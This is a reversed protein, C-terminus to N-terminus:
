IVPNEIRLPKERSNLFIIKFLEFIKSNLCSIWVAELNIVILELSLAQDQLLWTFHKKFDTELQFVQYLKWSAAEIELPILWTLNWSTKIWVTQDFFWFSPGFLYQFVSGLSVRSSFFRLFRFIKLIYVPHSIPDLLFICRWVEPDTLFATLSLPSRKYTRCKNAWWSWPRGPDERTGTHAM